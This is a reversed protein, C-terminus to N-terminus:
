IHILSLRQGDTLTFPLREIFNETFKSKITIGFSQKKDYKLLSELFEHKYLYVEEFILRKKAQQYEEFADDYSGAPFHLKKFAKLISMCSFKENFYDDLASIKYNNSLIKFAQVILKRIKQQSIVGRLSYTPIISQLPKNDM